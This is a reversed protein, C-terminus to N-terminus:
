TMEGANETKDKQSEMSVQLDQARQGRHRNVEREHKVDRIGHTLEGTIRVHIKWIGEKATDLRRSRGGMSMKICIAINVNRLTRNLKEFM